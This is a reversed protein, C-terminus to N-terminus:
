VEVEPEKKPDRAELLEFKTTESLQAVVGFYRKLHTTLNLHKSCGLVLRGDKKLRGSAKQILKQATDISNEHGFHFPPNSIILNFFRAPFMDLGDYLHVLVNENRTNFRTSEAAFWDDDMAHVEAEPNSRAVWKALIGNGSGFDLVYKENATPKLERMIMATAEDIGSSSFVGPYQMLKVEEESPNTDSPKLYEGADIFDCLEEASNYPISKRPRSLCIVRAKKEAKSQECVEFFEEAATIMSPSFHRTMFGAYITAFENEHINKWAEYLYYRFRQLQKPIKILAIHPSEDPADDPNHWSQENLELNNKMLNMRLSKESSSSDIVSYPDYEHYVTGLFGFNDNYLIIRPAIGQEKLETIKTDCFSILLEDAASYPKLSQDNTEPYRSIELPQGNRDYTSTSM